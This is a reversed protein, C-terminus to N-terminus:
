LRYLCTKTHKYIACQFSFISYPNRLRVLCYQSVSSLNSFPMSFPPSIQIIRCYNCQSLSTKCHNKRLIVITLDSGIQGRRDIAPTFTSKVPRLTCEYITTGASNGITLQYVAGDLFSMSRTETAPIAPGSSVSSIVDSWVGGVKRKWSYVCTDNGTNIMPTPITFATNYSYNYTNSSPSVTPATADPKKFQVSLVSASASVTDSDDCGNRVSCSLHITVTGSVPTQGVDFIITNGSASYDVGNFTAYAKGGGSSKSCNNSYATKVTIMVNGVANNIDAYATASDSGSKKPRCSVSASADGYLEVTIWDAAKITLGSQAFVLTLVAFCITLFVNKIHKHRMQLTKSM